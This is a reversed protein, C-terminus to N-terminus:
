SVDQYDDVFWTDTDGTASEDRTVTVDFKKIEETGGEGITKSSLTTKVTVQVVASGSGTATSGDYNIDQVVADMVEGTSREEREKIGKVLADFKPKIKKQHEPSQPMNNIQDYTPPETYDYTTWSTAWDQAATTVEGKAQEINAEADRKEQEAPDVTADDTAGDTAGDTPEGAGDSPGNTEETKYIPAQVISVKETEANEDEASGGGQSLNGYFFSVCALFIIVYGIKKAKRGRHSAFVSQV